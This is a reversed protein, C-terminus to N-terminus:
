SAEDTEATAADPTGPKLLPASALWRDAEAKPILTRRVGEPQRARLRGAEIQQYVTTRGVGYRVCFQEVSLADAHPDVYLRRIAEDIMAQIADVIEPSLADLNKHETKASAREPM